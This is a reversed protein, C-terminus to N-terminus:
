NLFFKDFNFHVLKLKIRQKTSTLNHLYIIFCLKLGFNAHIHLMKNKSIRSNSGLVWIKRIFKTGSYGLM